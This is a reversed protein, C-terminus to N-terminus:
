VSKANKYDGYDIRSIIKKLRMAVAYERKIGASKGWGWLRLIYFAECWDIHSLDQEVWFGSDNANGLYRSIPVSHSLPSFVIHGQKILTAAVRNTRRYRLYRILRFRHSYPAALYIKM